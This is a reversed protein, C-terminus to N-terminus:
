THCSRDRRDCGFFLKDVPLPTKIGIEGSTIISSIMSDGYISGFALSTNFCIMLSFYLILTVDEFILNFM